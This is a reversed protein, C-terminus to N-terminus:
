TDAVVFVPRCRHPVIEFCVDFFPPVDGEEAAIGAEPLDSGFALPSRKDTPLHIEVLIRNELGIVVSQQGPGPGVIQDLARFILKSSNTKGITPVVSEESAVTFPAVCDM